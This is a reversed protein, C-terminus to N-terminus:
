RAEREAEEQGPARLSRLIVTPSGSSTKAIVREDFRANMGFADSEHALSKTAPSTASSSSPKSTDSTPDVSSPSDSITVTESDPIYSIHWVDAAQVWPLVQTAAAIVASYVKCAEQQAFHPLPSLMVHTYKSTEAGPPINTGISTWERTVVM